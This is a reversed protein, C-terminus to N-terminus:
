RSRDAVPQWGRGCRDARTTVAWQLAEDGSDFARTIVATGDYKIDIEAGYPVLRVSCTVERDDRRLTWLTTGGDNM